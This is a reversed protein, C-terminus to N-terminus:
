VLDKIIKYAYELMNVEVIVSTKDIKQDYESKIMQSIVKPDDYIPRVGHGGHYESYNQMIIHNETLLEIELDEIAEIVQTTLNINRDDFMVVRVVKIDFGKMLSEIDSKVFLTKDYLENFSVGWDLNIYTTNMTIDNVFIDLKLVENQTESKYLRYVKYCISPKM